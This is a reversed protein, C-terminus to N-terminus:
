DPLTVHFEIKALQDPARGIKRLFPLWRPDAHIKDFLNETVIEFLGPDGYEVAKDLWVFAQDAEGRFAYVYAINSAADKGYKAILAALAQDSDAKRGLAHYAMPLGIMRYAEISEQEIEALASSGDGKLLLAVCLGLHAGGHTPSLSLVTRFSAIAEDYRGAYHQINGLNYLATLNVPDRHVVAERIALAEDLRDLGALFTGAGGLVNLDTPDLALAREYHKAAGALDAGGYMAVSGLRAHAPAYDPDIALAKEAAERARASGERGSLLGMGAKNIFNRALEDWAPAYRPDIELAERFLTDSKAFAEATLQRGLEKAQLYLAYARPDTTRAKPGEGLLTVKLEAVVQSAIEDQIRFIDDLRRDYTRSWVHFGDAAHILQATIRVQGGSKRVSGELVNAVHLQRAIEPIELEKGKFSFSSTRATVKLGPVKALLNLLEESIGDSFYENAKDESMNVFPLVAISKPDPGAATGPADLAPSPPPAQNTRGMFVFVGAVAAAAVIGLGIWLGKRGARGATVVTSPPSVPTGTTQLDGVGSEVERRLTRLENRVDKATQFRAEPDKQLCHDIIRALHRPADQRADTVPRPADRLISSITEAPTKGGFPRRGTAMEFLVVGLSFIDTRADLTQGNVQEPSMYPVTGMVVGVDTLSHERPATETPAVSDITVSGAPRGEPTEPALKALGFDLVKVRGDKTLMVNAPKLDRHVIGKEHAAALADSLAIGIDFVQALPLGGPPLTRDLSSGEVLEMTLFHAGEAEEVSHLTVIHPHNLAAVAQAERRFRALREADAAMAEPLVKLAVDRNLKTDRALFVAGMGGQGILREIRYHALIQGPKIM